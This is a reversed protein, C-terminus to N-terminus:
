AKKGQATANSQGFVGEKKLAESFEKFSIKGDKNTDMDKFIQDVTQSMSGTEFLPNGFGFLRLGVRLEKANISGDADLDLVDFLAKTIAREIQDTSYSGLESVQADTGTAKIAQSMKTKMENSASRWTSFITILDYTAHAVIPVILNFGSYYYCYCFIGGLFAELFANAGWLPYHGLAFLSSSIIFAGPIGLAWNAVNFVFGRFFAEEAIGAGM